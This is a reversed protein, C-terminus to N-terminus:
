YLGRYMPPSSYFGNTQHSPPQQSQPITSYQAPGGQVPLTSTGSPIPSHSPVLPVNPHVSGPHVGHMASAPVYQPHLPPSVARRSNHTSVAEPISTGAQGSVVHGAAQVFPDIQHHPLSVPQAQQQAQALLQQEYPSIQMSMDVMPTMVVHPASQAVSHSAVAPADPQRSSADWPSYSVSSSRDWVSESQVLATNDVPSFADNVSGPMPQGPIPQFVPVHGSTECLIVLPENPASQQEPKVGRTAAPQATHVHELTDNNNELFLMVIGCLLVASGFATLRLFFRQRTGDATYLTKPINQQITTTLSMWTKKWVPTPCPSTMSPYGINKIFSDGGLDPMRAIIKGDLPTYPEAPLKEPLEWDSFLTRNESTCLTCENPFLTDSMIVRPIHEM